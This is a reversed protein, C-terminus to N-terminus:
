ESRGTIEVEERLCKKCTGKYYHMVQEVKHGGCSVRGAAPELVDYITGCSRCFFHGHPERVYDYNTRRDDITLKNVEGAAELAELTNYVTALSLSPYDPKLGRYIEEASPHSRKASLFATIALRQPTLKVKKQKFTKILQKM